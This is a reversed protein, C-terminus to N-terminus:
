PKMCEGYRDFHFLLSVLFPSSSPRRFPLIAVTGKTAMPNPGARTARPQRSLSSPTLDHDYARSLRYLSASLASHTQDLIARGLWMAIRSGVTSSFYDTAMHVLALLIVFLTLYELIVFCCPPLSIHSLHDISRVYHYIILIVQLTHYITM